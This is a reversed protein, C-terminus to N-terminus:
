KVMFTTEAVPGAESHDNNALYVKLTHEGKPLNTYTIEPAVSPSYKGQTGLTVALEGNAGSYKPLDFKGGDMEFHLHGEGMMAAKGVADANIMFDKLDVKANVAGTVTAGPEPSTFSVPSEKVTFTTEAAVGTDTHLNDALYVKLTHEGAPLNTYTINPTVSPSYKGDVNLKVALDGNAGSYKPFDYKGGDMAFHIHGEGAVASMGVKDPALTFGDIQVQAMVTGDVEADPMPSVFSVKPGDAAAPSTTSATDDGGCGAVVTAAAVMTALLGARMRKM